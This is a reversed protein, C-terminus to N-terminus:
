DFRTLHEVQRVIVARERASSGDSKLDMLKVATVLPGLPTRLEHALMALFDEKQRNSRELAEAQQRITREDRKLETIDTVVALAGIFHTGDSLPTGAYHTWLSSGDKRILEIENREPVGHKRDEFGKEATSLDSQRVFDSFRRGHMEEPTYGLMDAMRPNVYTTRGEADITWIGESALTVVARFRREITRVRAVVIMTLASVTVSVILRVVEASSEVAFQFKPPLALVAFVAQVAITLAGVFMGGYWTAVIVPMVLIATVFQGTGRWVVEAAGIGCFAAFVALSLAIVQRGVFSLRLRDMTPGLLWQAM